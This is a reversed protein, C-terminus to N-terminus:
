LCLSVPSVPSVTLVILCLLGSSRTQEGLEDSGPVRDLWPVITAMVVVTATNSLTTTVSGFHNRVPDGM